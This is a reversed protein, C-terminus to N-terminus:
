PRRLRPRPACALAWRRSRSAAMSSAPLRPVGNRRAGYRAPGRGGRSLGGVSPKCARDTMAPSSTMALRRSTAAYDRRTLPGIRSSIARAALRVDSGNSGPWAQGARRTGPLRGDHCARGIRLLEDVAGGAVPLDDDAELDMGLDGRVRLQEGAGRGLEAALRVRMDAEDVRRHRAHQRHDVLLAHACATRVPRPRLACILRRLPRRGSSSNRDRGAAPSDSRATCAASRRRPRPRDTSRSSPSSADVTPM